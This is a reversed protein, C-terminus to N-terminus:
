LFSLFFAKLQSVAFLGSTTCSSPNSFFYFRDHQFGLFHAPLLL